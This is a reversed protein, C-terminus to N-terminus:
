SIVNDDGSSMETSTESEDINVKLDPNKDALKKMMERVKQDLKEDMEQQLQARIKGTLDSVYLDSVASTSSTGSKEKSEKKCILRGILFSRSHEKNGQVLKNAAEVGDTRLAEKVDSQLVVCSIDLLIIM